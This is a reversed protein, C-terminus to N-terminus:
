IHILSLCAKHGRSDRVTKVSKLKKARDYFSSKVIMRQGDAEVAAKIDFYITRLSKSLKGSIAETIMENIQDSLDEAIHSGHFGRQDGEDILAEVPSIGKAEGERILRRWRRLTSGSYRDALPIDDGADVKELIGVRHIARELNATGARWFRSSQADVNWRDPLTVKGARHASVLVGHDITLHEGRATM